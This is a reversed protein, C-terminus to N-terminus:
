KRENIKGNPLLWIVAMLLLAVGLVVLELYGVTTAWLFRWILILIILGVVLVIKIWQVVRGIRKAKGDLAKEDDAEEEMSNRQHMVIQM